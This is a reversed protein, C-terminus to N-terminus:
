ASANRRAVVWPVTGLPLRVEDGVEKQAACPVGPWGGLAPCPQQKDGLGHGRFCTVKSAAVAMRGEGVRGVGMGQQSIM